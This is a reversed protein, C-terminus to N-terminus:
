LPLSPFSDWIRYHVTCYQVTFHVTSHLASYQVTCQVTLASYQVTCIVPSCQLSRHLLLAM